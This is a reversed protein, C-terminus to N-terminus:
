MKRRPKTFLPVKHMHDRTNTDEVMSHTNIFCCRFENRRCVGFSVDM